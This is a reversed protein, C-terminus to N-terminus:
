NGWIIVWEKGDFGEVKRCDYLTVLRTETPKSEVRGASIRVKTIGDRRRLIPIDSGPNQETPASKFLDGKSDLFYAEASKFTGRVRLAYRRSPGEPIGELIFEDMRDQVALGTGAGMTEKQSSVEVLSGEVTIVKGEYIEGYGQDFIEALERASISEKAQPQRKKTEPIEVIILDEKCALWRVGESLGCKELFPGYSPM